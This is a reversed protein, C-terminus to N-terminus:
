IHFAKSYFILCNVNLKIIQNLKEIFGKQIFYHADQCNGGAITLKGNLLRNMSTQQKIKSKM